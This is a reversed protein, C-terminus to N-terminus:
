VNGREETSEVHDTLPFTYAALNIIMFLASVPIVLYVYGMPVQLASSQQVMAQSVIHIGQVFLILLFAATALFAAVLIGKYVSPRFKQVFFDIGVHSGTKFAISAGLFTVWIMLYRALEEIWPFSSGFIVRSVVQFFILLVMAALFLFLVNSIGSNLRELLHKM